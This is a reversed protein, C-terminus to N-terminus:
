PKQSIESSNVGVDTPFGSAVRKTALLPLMVGNAIATDPSATAGVVGTVIAGDGSVKGGCGSPTGVVCYRVRVLVVFYSTVTLEMGTTVPALLAENVAELTSHPENAGPPVQGTLTVKM